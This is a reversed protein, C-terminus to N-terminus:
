PHRLVVSEVRVGCCDLFPDCCSPRLASKKDKRRRTSTWGFIAGDSDGGHNASASLSPPLQSASTLPPSSPRVHIVALTAPRSYSLDVRLRLSFLKFFVARHRHSLIFSLRPRRRLLEKSSLVAPAEEDIIPTPRAAYTSALSKIPQAPHILGSLDPRGAASGFATHLQLTSASSM